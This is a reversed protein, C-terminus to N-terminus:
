FYKAVIQNMILPMNAWKTYSMSLDFPGFCYNFWLLEM